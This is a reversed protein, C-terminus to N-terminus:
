SRNTTNKNKKFYAIVLLISPIVLGFLLSYPTNTTSAIDIVEVISKNLTISFTVVIILLPAIIPRYDQLEFIQAIALVSAYFSVVMKIFITIVFSLAIFIEVRTLFDGIEILRAMNFTPYISMETPRVNLVLVSSLIVFLLSIGAIVGGGIFFRKINERNHVYPIIMLFIVMESFPFGLLPYSGKILPAIGDSFIPMAKEIKMKPILLIITLWVGIAAIPAILENTRGIVEIGHYTAMYVLIAAMISFVVKPTNPMISATIFDGADEMVLVAIHLFYWAYMLGIIIGLKKGLLTQAIEVITQNPYHNALSVMIYAFISGVIIAILMAIWGAQKAQSVTISPIILLASGVVFNIVLLWLQFRSIKGNELM